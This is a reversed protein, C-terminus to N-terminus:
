RYWPATWGAYKYGWKKEVAAITSRTLTGAGNIDTSIINSGGTSIAVHGSKGGSWFVLAGAPANRNNAHKYRAPTQQWHIWATNFGSYSRGYARAMIKDCWGIYDSNRKTSINSVAWKLAAACTRPNKIGSAQCGSTPPKPQGKCPPAVAGNSGTYVYTDSVYGGPVHNWLDSTGYKGTVTTGRATCDINV